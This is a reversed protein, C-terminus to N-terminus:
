FKRWEVVINNLILFFAMMSFAYVFDVGWNLQGKIFYEFHSSSGFWGLARGLGDWINDLARTVPPFGIGWLIFLLVMAVLLAVIQNDTFASVASGIAIYVGALLFAGIYSSIVVGWDLPVVLAVSLPVTLTLILTVLIVTYGSLFKALVVEWSKLPMTMLLELTGAKREESWLRMTVAPILLAFTLPFAGFYSRLEPNAQQFFANYFFFFVGMVVLFACIFIYAIPSTFYSSIERRYITCVNRM